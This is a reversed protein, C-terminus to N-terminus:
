GETEPYCVNQTIYSLYRDDTGCCGGLIKLGHRRHLTLMAEGWEQLSDQHLEVSGDLQNHDLSSSNAQIGWLRRWLEPPQKEAQLFLPYACNVMYCIPSGDTEQDVAAVAAALPTGDLLSGHRNIVFSLIHPLGAAACVRAVGVAESVAPFTQGVVVEVGAAALEGIQWRHYREAEDVPLASAGQYCDNRPGILGGAFVPSRPDQWSDRLEVMFRVADRNLSDGLGAVACRQRDVRWTPACLLMPLSAARAIERYQHYIETLCDRGRDDYILPTIFLSPHLIVDSRRRLRETIAAETLVLRSTALTTPFDM